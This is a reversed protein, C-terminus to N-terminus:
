ETVARPWVWDAGLWPDDFNSQDGALGQDDLGDLGVSYLLWSKQNQQRYRLPQGNMYDIPQEQLYDPVLQDLQSPVQGHALQYRQIAIAARAMERLIALRLARLLADESTRLLAASVMLREGGFGESNMTVQAAHWNRQTALLRAGEIQRQVRTLFNLEDQDARFKIWFWAQWRQPMVSSGAGLNYYRPPEDRVQQFSDLGLARFAEL